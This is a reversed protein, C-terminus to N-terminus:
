SSPQDGVSETEINLLSKTYEQISSVRDTGDGCRSSYAQFLYTKGAALLGTIDAYCEFASEIPRCTAQARALPHDSAPIFIREGQKEYLIFYNDQCTYDITPAWRVHTEDETTVDIRPQVVFSGNSEEWVSRHTLRWFFSFVIGIAALGLFFKVRKSFKM